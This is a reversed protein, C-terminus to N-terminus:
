SDVCNFAAVKRRDIENMSQLVAVRDYDDCYESAQPLAEDVGEDDDVIVAIGSGSGRHCEFAALLDNGDASISQLVATRDYRACHADAQAVADELDDLDDDIRLAVGRSSDLDRPQACAVVIVPLMAALLGRWPTM